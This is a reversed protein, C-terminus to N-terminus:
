EMLEVRMAVLQDILKEIDQHAQEVHKRWEKNILRQDYNFVGQCAARTAEFISENYLEQIRQPFQVCIPCRLWPRATM